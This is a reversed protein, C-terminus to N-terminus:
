HILTNPTHYNYRYFGWHLLINQSNTTTREPSPPSNYAKNM